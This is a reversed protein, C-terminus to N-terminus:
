RHYVLLVNTPVFFVNYLGWEEQSISIRLSFLLDGYVGEFTTKLGHVATTTWFCTRSLIPTVLVPKGHESMALHKSFDSGLGQALHLPNNDKFSSVKEQYLDIQPNQAGPFGFFTNRRLSEFHLGGQIWFVM